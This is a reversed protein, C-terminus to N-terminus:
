ALAEAGESPLIHRLKGSGVGISKMEGKSLAPPPSLAVQM